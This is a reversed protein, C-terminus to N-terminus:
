VEYDKPARAAKIHQALRSVLDPRVALVEVLADREIDPLAGQAFRLILDEIDGDIPADGRAAVEADLAPRLLRWVSQFDEAM